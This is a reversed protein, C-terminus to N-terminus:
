LSEILKNINKNFQENTFLEQVRQKAALGYRKRLEEDAALTEIAKAYQEVNRNEVEIGTIGNLSVYNVGSGEITFTVAPKGASMAEALAIGFAENKTISPFCFIDCANIYSCVSDNDIKGLFHVKNDDEALKKLSETLEGQGGILVVYKDDLLKSARVLYEIGKYPVHRGLAFCIIKGEYEKRIADVKSGTKNMREDSVCNPIVVCKDKFQPLYKSSEIYNPSTAVIKNARKLLRLNQGNFLKGLLKQKTIDLHWYVVLKTNPYKKLIKLLFHAEFPNPYHFIICEPQFEKITKKLTKGFSFSLSQSAVKAFSAVRIIEIGDVTDVRSGKEKNFCILKQEHEKLANVCDRAVQEIGGLFPFYYNSIHLIKM